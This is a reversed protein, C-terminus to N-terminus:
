EKSYSFFVWVRVVVVVRRGGGVGLCVAQASTGMALVSKIGLINFQLRSPDPPITPFCSSFYKLGYIVNRNTGLSNRVGQYVQCIHMLQLKYNTFTVYLSIRFLM